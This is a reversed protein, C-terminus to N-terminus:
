STFLNPKKRQSANLPLFLSMQNVQKLSKKVWFGKKINYSNNSSKKGYFINRKQM